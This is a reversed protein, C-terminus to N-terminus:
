IWGKKRFFTIMISALVVIVWLVAFFAHSIWEGPLRVNMGYLGTVFTMSWVIATFITLVWVIKNTKMTMLTNYTDSLSDINQYLNMIHNRIKDIKYALDEFYVDFEGGFFKMTSEQLEDIIETQPMFASKLFISNRKKTVIEELIGKSVWEHDFMDEELSMVEKTFKNLSKLAKDYMGDVLKYLIYYPSIMYTEDKEAKEVDEKYSQRITSIESTSYRSISVIFNRWLVINFENLAYRQRKKDYKPFNIVLFIYNEYVDIKDHTWSEMMDDVILEHFDYQKSLKEINEESPNVMHIRKTKWLSFLNESM